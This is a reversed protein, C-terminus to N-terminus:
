TSSRMADKRLIEGHVFRAFDGITVM